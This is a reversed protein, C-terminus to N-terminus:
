KILSLIGTRINEKIAGEEAMMLRAAGAFADNVTKTCTSDATTKWVVVDDAARILQWSAHITITFDFGMAPEVSTFAIELHYDAPTHQTIAKFAGTNQLATEVAQRFESDHINTEANPNSEKGGTVTVLVSGPITRGPALDPVMNKPNDACGALPGLAALMVLLMMGVM